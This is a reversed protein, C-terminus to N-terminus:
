RLFRCDRDFYWLCKKWLFLFFYDGFKYLVVFSGSNGFYDQSFFLLALPMMCESKSICQLAVTIVAIHHQCSFLCLSWHLLVWFYVQACDVSRGCPLGSYLIFAPLVTEVFPTLFAPCGWAFPHFQIGVTWWVCVFSRPSWKKSKVGVSLLSLLLFDFHFYVVSFLQLESIRAVQHSSGVWQFLGQHQPLSLAPLSPSSLPHSPQIADGVWHVHTQAFELLCYLVPFGPTNRDTPTASDSMVSRSFLLLGLLTLQGEWGSDPPPGILMRHQHMLSEHCPPVPTGVSSRDLIPQLGHPWDSDWHSPSAAAGLPVPLGTYSPATLAESQM